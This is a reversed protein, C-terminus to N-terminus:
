LKGKRRGATCIMKEEEDSIQGKEKLSIMSRSISVTQLGTHSGLRSRDVQVKKDQSAESLRRVAWRVRDQAKAIGLYSLTESTEGLEKTMGAVALKLVSAQLEFDKGQLAQRLINIDLLTIIATDSEVVYQYHESHSPRFVAEINLFDEDQALRATVTGTELQFNDPNRIFTEVAIVGDMVLAVRDDLYFTEGRRYRKLCSSDANSYTFLEFLQRM